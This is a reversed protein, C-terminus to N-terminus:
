STTPEFGPVLYLNSMKDNYHQLFQLKRKFLAFIFSLLPRPQGMKLFLQVSVLRGSVIVGCDYIVIVSGYSQIREYYWM